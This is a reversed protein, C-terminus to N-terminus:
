RRLGLTDCDLHRAHRKRKMGRPIGHWESPPHSHTQIDLWFIRHKPTKPRSFFRRAGPQMNAPSVMTKAKQNSNVPGSQRLVSIRMSRNTSYAYTSLFHRESVLGNQWMMGEEKGITKSPGLAGPYASDIIQMQREFM